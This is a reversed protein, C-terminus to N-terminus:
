VKQEYIYDDNDYIEFYYAGNSAVILRSKIQSYNCSALEICTGYNTAAHSSTILFTANYVVSGRTAGLSLIGSTGITPTVPSAYYLRSWTKGQSVATWRRNVSSNYTDEYLKIIGNKYVFAPNKLALNARYGDYAMGLLVYIKNDATTPLDQTWWTDALTHTGLEDTDENFVLYVFKYATLSSATINLSYRLDVLNHSFACQQWGTYSNENINNSNNLYFIKDIFYSPTNKEKTTATGNTKTFSSFRGDSQRAFLSYQKLGNTGGQVRYYYPRITEIDNTDYNANVIWRNDTTAVGDISISGASYYTMIINSGKAFHTTLRDYRYYCNIAGTTTGDKLTLNLTANGSGAYPLFYAITLGDYLSDIDINGTWNGTAATQTGVVPIITHKIDYIKNDPLKIKDIYGM